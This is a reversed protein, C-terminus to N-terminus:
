QIYISYNSVCLGVKKWLKFIWKMWSLETELNKNVIFMPGPGVLKNAYMFREMNVMFM